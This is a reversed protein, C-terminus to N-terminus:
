LSQIFKVLAEIQESQFRSGFDKPMKNSFGAALKAGPDTISERLFEASKNASLKLGPGIGKVDTMSHCNICNAKYLAQGQEVVTLKTASDDPKKIADAKPPPVVETDSATPVGGCGLFCLVLGSLLLRM